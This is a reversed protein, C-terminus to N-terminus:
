YFSARKVAQKVFTQKRQQTNFAVVAAPRVAVVGGAWDDNASFTYTGTNFSGTANNESCLGLTAGNSGGSVDATNNDASPYASITRSTDIGIPTIWLTDEVAWNAPNVAIITPDAPTTTGATNAYTLGDGDVVFASTDARDTPLGSGYWGTIRFIRWGGQESAALGASFTGTESGDSIKAFVSLAVATKDLTWKNFGAPLSNVIGAGDASLFGLILNGAALNTPYTLTWSASNTTVTGTKTDAGSISPFAM